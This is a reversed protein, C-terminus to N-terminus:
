IAAEVVIALSGLGACIVVIVLAAIIYWLLSNPDKTNM